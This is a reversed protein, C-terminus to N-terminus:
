VDQHYRINNNQHKAKLVTITTVSANNNYITNIKTLKDVSEWYYNEMRSRFSFHRRLRATLRFYYVNCNTM